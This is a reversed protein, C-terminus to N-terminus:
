WRVECTWVHFFDVFRGGVGRERVDGDGGTVVGFTRVHAYFFDVGWLGQTKTELGARLCWHVPQM